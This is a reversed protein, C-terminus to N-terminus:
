TLHETLSNNSIGGEGELRCYHFNNYLIRFKREQLTLGSRRQQHSM